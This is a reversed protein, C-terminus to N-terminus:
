PLSRNVAVVVTWLKCTYVSESGSMLEGKLWSVESAVSVNIVEALKTHLRPVFQLSREALEVQRQEPSTDSTSTQM